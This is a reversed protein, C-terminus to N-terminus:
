SAEEDPLLLLTALAPRDVAGFEAAAARQQRLWTDLTRGRVEAFRHASSRLGKRAEPDILHTLLVDPSAALVASAADALPPHALRTALSDVAVGDTGRVQAIAVSGDDRLLDAVTVPDGTLLHRPGNRLLLCVDARTRSGNLRPRALEVPPEGRDKVLALLRLASSEADGDVAHVAQRLAVSYGAAVERILAVRWVWRRLLRRAWRSPQADQDFVRTLVPVVLLTPLLRVHPVWAEAALFQTAQLLASEVRAYTPSPDEGAFENRPDRTVDGGRVALVADLVTRDPLPGFPSASVREVLTPLSGPDGAGRSTLANFIATADLPRGATNLRDFIERVVREDETEVVYCPVQYERLKKGAETAREVLVDDEVGRLWRLLAATDCALRLPLLYAPLTGRRPRSTVTGHQLDLYLDFRADESRGPLDSLAGALSVTRQQGDVVHWAAPHAPAEVHLPGLVATEAGAPRQWFFLTGIPYQQLVSDLLKVVDDRTWLYGRQFQPM